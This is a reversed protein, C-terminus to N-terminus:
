HMLDKENGLNDLQVIGLIRLAARIGIILFCPPMVIMVLWIPFGLSSVSTEGIMYSFIVSQSTYYALSLATICLLCDAIRWLVKAVSPSLYNHLIDISINQRNRDARILGIFVLAIIFYVSIEELTNFSLDFVYRAVVQVFNLIAATALFIVVAAIELKALCKDLFCLTNM